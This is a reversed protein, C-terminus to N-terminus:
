SYGMKKMLIQSERDYARLSANVLRDFVEREIRAREKNSYHGHVVSAPSLEMMREYIIKQAESLFNERMKRVLEKLDEKRFVRGGHITHVKYENLAATLKRNADRLTSFPPMLSAIVLRDRLTKHQYSNSKRKSHDWQQDSVLHKPRDIQRSLLSLDLALSRSTSPKPASPKSVSAQSTPAETSKCHGAIEVSDPVDAVRHSRPTTRERLKSLDIGRKAMEENLFDFVNWCHCMVAIDRPLNDYKDRRLLEPNPLQLVTDVVDVWDVTATWHILNRGYNDRQNVDLEPVRLLVMLAEKFGSHAAAHAATWGNRDQFRVNAGYRLLIKVSAVNGM